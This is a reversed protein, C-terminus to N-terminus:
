DRLKLIAEESATRAMEGVDFNGGIFPHIIITM